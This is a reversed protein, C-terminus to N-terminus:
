RSYTIDYIIALVTFPLPQNHTLVVSQEQGSSDDIPLDVIGTYLAPPSGFPVETSRFRLEQSEGNEAGVYGGLTKYLRMSVKSIRRKAGLTVNGPIEVSQPTINMGYPLGAIVTNVRSPLTVQGSGDVTQNPFVAGDGLIQVEEGILHDFGTFVDTVEYVTGVGPDTFEDTTYYEGALKLKFTTGIKDDVVFTLRDLDSVGTFDIKVYDDDAFDDTVGDWTVTIDSADWTIATIRFKDGATTTLASDSFVMDSQQGLRRDNLKEIYRYFTGDVSRKVIFWVEDEDSDGEISAVSEFLGRTTHRHWGSIQNARNYTLGILTGDERAAWLISDPNQQYTSEILGSDTIHGAYFTLDNALYAKNDNSYIYERLKRGGKQFFLLTDAVFVAQKYESGYASQKLIRVNTPTIGTEGGMILWESDSTGIMLGDKSVLWKIRSAKDSAMTFSFADDDNPGVTFDNYRGIRSGWITQPDNVMGALYLREDMFGVAAPYNNESGFLEGIQWYQTTSLPATNGDTISAYLYFSTEDYVFTNKSAPSPKNSSSYILGVVGRVGAVTKWKHTRTTTTYTFTYTVIYIYTLPSERESSHVTWTGAGHWSDLREELTEGGNLRIRANTITREATGGAADPVGPEQTNSGETSEWLMMDHVVLDGLAFPTATWEPINATGASTPVRGAYRWKGVGPAKGTATAVCKYYEGAYEVWQGFGYTASNDYADVLINIPVMTFGTSDKELLFVPHLEHAFYLVGERQAIQLESIHEEEYPTVLESGSVVAVPDSQTDWARIYLAGVEMMYKETDSVVFPILKTAKAGTKVEGIYVTGPRKEAGGQAVMIANEMTKCGQYYGPLDIRGEIRPSLEGKSFNNIIPYLKEAM